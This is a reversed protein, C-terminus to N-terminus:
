QIAVKTRHAAFVSCYGCSFRCGRSTEVNGVVVARRARREVEQYRYSSLPPLSRRDPVLHGERLYRPSATGGPVAVNPIGAIAENSAVRRAIEVLSMESDGLIIADAYRGLLREQNLMAYNGYLVVLGEYGDTRVDRVLELTPKLSDFLPVSFALLGANISAKPLRELSADITSTEIGAALLHASAAAVGLPQMGGEYCSILTVSM